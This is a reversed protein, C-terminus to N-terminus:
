AKFHEKNITFSYSIKATKELIATVSCYKKMSLDIARRVKDDTLDGDFSFSVHITEFLSPIKDQERSGQVEVSYEKVEQKMKRLISLVDMSSCAAIGMLLLEMPRVGDSHGGIKPAGDLYVPYPGTGRAELKFDNNIRKLTVKNM